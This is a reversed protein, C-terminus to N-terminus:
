LKRPFVTAVQLVPDAVIGCILLFGHTVFHKSFFISQSLTLLFELLTVTALRDFARCFLEFVAEYFFTPSFFQRCNCIKKLDKKFNQLCSKTIEQKTRSYLCLATFLVASTKAIHGFKQRFHAPLGKGSRAVTAIM